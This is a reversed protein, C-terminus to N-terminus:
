FFVISLSIISGSAYLCERPHPRFGCSTEYQNHTRKCATWIVGHAGDKVQAGVCPWSAPELFGRVRSGKPVGRVVRVTDTSLTGLMM